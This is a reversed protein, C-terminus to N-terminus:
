KGVPTFENPRALYHRGKRTLFGEESVFGQSVADQLVNSNQSKPLYIFGDGYRHTLLKEFQSRDLHSSTMM